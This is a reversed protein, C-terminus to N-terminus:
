LEISLEELPSVKTPIYLGFSASSTQYWPYWTEQVQYLPIPPQWSNAWEALPCPGPPGYSLLNLLYNYILDQLYPLYPYLGSLTCCCSVLNEM